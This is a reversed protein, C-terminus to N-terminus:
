NNPDHGIKERTGSKPRNRVHFDVGGSVLFRALGMPDIPEFFVYEAM